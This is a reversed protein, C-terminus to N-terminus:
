AGCDARSSDQAAAGGSGHYRPGADRVGQARIAHPLYWRERDAVRPHRGARGSGLGTVTTRAAPQAAPKPAPAVQKVTPDQAEAPKQPNASVVVASIALFALATRM